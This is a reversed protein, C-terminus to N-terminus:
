NKPPVILAHNAQAYPVRRDGLHGQNSERVPGYTHQTTRQNKATGHPNDLGDPKGGEPSFVFLKSIQSHETTMIAQNGFAGKCTQKRFM